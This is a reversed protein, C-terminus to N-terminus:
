RVTRAIMRLIEGPIGNDMYWTGYTKLRDYLGSCSLAGTGNFSVVYNLWKNVYWELGLYGDPEANVEPLPITAPLELLFALAEQFAAEPVPEAGEGNWNRERYRPELHLLADIADRRAQVSALQAWNLTGAFFTFDSKGEILV